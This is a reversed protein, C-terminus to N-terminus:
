GFTYHNNVVRTYRHFFHYIKTGQNRTHYYQCITHFIQRRGPFNSLGLTAVGSDARLSNSISLVPRSDDFRALLNLLASCSFFITSLLIGQGNSLFISFPTQLFLLPFFLTWMSFWPVKVCCTRACTSSALTFQNLKSKFMLYKDLSAECTRSIVSLSITSNKKWTERGQNKCSRM